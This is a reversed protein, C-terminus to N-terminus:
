RRRTSRGGGQEAAIGLVSEGVKFAEEGAAPFVIQGEDMLRQIEIRLVDVVATDDAGCVISLTILLQRLRDANRSGRNAPRNMRVRQVPTRFEEILTVLRGEDNGFVAHGRMVRNREVALNVVRVTLVVHM